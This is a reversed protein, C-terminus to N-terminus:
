QSLAEGTQASSLVDRISQVVLAQQDSLGHDSIVLSSRFNTSLSNMVSNETELAARYDSSAEEIPVGSQNANIVIMPMDGFMGAQGLRESMLAIEDPQQLAAWEANYTEWTVARGRQAAMAAAGEPSCSPCAAAASLRFVGIRGMFIYVGMPISQADAITAEYTPDLLVLGATEDPYQAAFARVYIGGNSPGVLVYPPEINANQLLTHLEAVIQWATRTEPRPDSWGMGTRDYACVRTNERLQEQLAYQQLSLGGAGSELIVTPSGEGVCNIHMTYGDVDILQGPAPYREADSAQMVSEYIFGAVIPVIIVLALGVLGWAVFFLCGRRKRPKPPTTDM